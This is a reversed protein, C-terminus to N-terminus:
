SEVVYNTRTPEVSTRIFVKSSTAIEYMQLNCMLNKASNDPVLEKNNIKNSM